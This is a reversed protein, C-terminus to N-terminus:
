RVYYCGPRIWIWSCITVAGIMTYAFTFLWAPADYYILRGLWHQIFTEAYPQKGAIERLTNEWITLPCLRNAWAQVIVIAIALVHCFRFIFNRVWHWGRFYGIVIFAQGMLVFVIFISHIVLIVDAM